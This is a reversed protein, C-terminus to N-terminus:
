IHVTDVIETRFVEVVQAQTGSDNDTWDGVKIMHGPVFVTDGDSLRAMTTPEGAIEIGDITM